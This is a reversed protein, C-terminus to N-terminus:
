ASRELAQLETNIWAFLAGGMASILVMAVIAELLTFGRMGCRAHPSTRPPHAFFM